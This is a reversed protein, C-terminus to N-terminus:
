HRPTATGFLLRPTRAIMLWAGGLFFRVMLTSVRARTSPSPAKNMWSFPSLTVSTLNFIKSGGRRNSGKKAPTMDRFNRVNHRADTANARDGILHACHM